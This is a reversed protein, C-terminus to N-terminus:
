TNHIYGDVSACKCLIILFIMQQSQSSRGELLRNKNQIKIMEEKVGSSRMRKMMAVIRDASFHMLILVGLRCVIFTLVLFGFDITVSESLSIGQLIHVVMRGKVMCYESIESMSDCPFTMGSVECLNSTDPGSTFCKYELYDHVHLIAARSGQTFVSLEQLWVWYSPTSSWPIFIGGGFVTLVVFTGQSVIIAATADSFVRSIFNVM